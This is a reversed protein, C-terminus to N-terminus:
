SSLPCDSGAFRQQMAHRQRVTAHRERAGFCLGFTDRPSRRCPVRLVRACRRRPCSVHGQRAVVAGGRPCGPHSEMRIRSTRGGSEISRTTRRGPRPTPTHRGPAPSRRAAGRRAPPRGHRPAPGSRLFLLSGAPCSPGISTVLFLARRAEKGTRDGDARGAPEADSAVHYPPPQRRAPM